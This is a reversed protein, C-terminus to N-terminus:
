GTLTTKWNTKTIYGLMEACYYMRNGEMYDRVIVKQISEENLIARCERKTLFFLILDLQGKYIATKLHDTNFKWQDPFRRILTAFDDFYENEFLTKLIEPDYEILKWNSIIEHVHNKKYHKMQAFKTVLESVTFLLEGNNFNSNTANTFKFDFMTKRRSDVKV